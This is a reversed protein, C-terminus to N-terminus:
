DGLDDFYLNILSRGGTFFRHDVEGPSSLIVFHLNHDKEGTEGVDETQTDGDPKGAVVVVIQKPM